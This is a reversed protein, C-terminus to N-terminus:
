QRYPRVIMDKNVMVNFRYGPRIESTPQIRMNQRIMEMGVQGMQQGLAVHSDYTGVLKAGQPILLYKGTGTDYVNQSVQAIIQGPLDSNIGTIMVAPIVTGTKVEYPSVPEERQFPLYSTQRQKELFAEKQAQLNPDSNNFQEQMHPPNSGIGAQLSPRSSDNESIQQVTSINLETSSIMATEYMQMKRQRRQMLEQRQTDDMM